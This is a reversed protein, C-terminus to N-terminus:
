GYDSLGTKLEIWEKVLLEGGAYPFSRAQVCGPSALQIPYFRRGDTELYAYGEPRLKMVRAAHEKTECLSLNLM